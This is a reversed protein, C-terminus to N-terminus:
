YDDCAPEPCGQARAWAELQQHGGHMAEFLTTADWPCRAENRLWQLTDLDGARACAATTEAGGLPCGNEYLWLLVERHGAGAAAVCAQDHWPCPPEHARAWQLVELHGAAAAVYTTRPHWAVPRMSQSFLWRLVQLHGAQAALSTILESWPCGQETVWQLVDLHGGYCAFSATEASWRCGQQRAWQVCQM